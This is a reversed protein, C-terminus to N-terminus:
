DFPENQRCLFVCNSASGVVIKKLLENTPGLLTNKRSRQTKNKAFIERIAGMRHTCRCQWSLAGKRQDISEELAVSSTEETVANASRHHEAVHVGLVSTLSALSVLTHFM